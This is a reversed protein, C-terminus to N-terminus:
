SYGVLPEDSLIWDFLKCLLGDDTRLSAGVKEPPSVTGLSWGPNMARADNALHVVILTQRQTSAEKQGCTSSLWGRLEKAFLCRKGLLRICHPLVNEVEILVRNM